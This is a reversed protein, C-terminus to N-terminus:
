PRKYASSDPAHALSGSEMVSLSLHGHHGRVARMVRACSSWPRIALLVTRETSTKERWFRYLMPAARLEECQRRGQANNRVMQRLKLITYM